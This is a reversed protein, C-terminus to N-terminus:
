YDNQNHKTNVWFVEGGSLVVRKQLVHPPFWGQDGGLNVLVNPQHDPLCISSIVGIKNAHKFSRELDFTWVDGYLTEIIQNYKPHILVEDGVELRIM